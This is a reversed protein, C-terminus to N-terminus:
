KTIEQGISLIMDFEGKCNICANNWFIEKEKGNKTIIINTYEYFKKKNKIVSKWVKYINKRQSKPIFIKIWEKGIVEKTKYGTLKEAFKNFILIKSKVGLGIVINPASDILKDSFEKEKKLNDQLIKQETVNDILMLVNIGNSLIVTKAIVEGLFTKKNKKLFNFKLKLYGESVTKKLIKFLNFNKSGFEKKILHEMKMKKIENKSYGLMKITSNNIDVINGKLNHIIMAQNNNEFLSKYDRDKLLIEVKPNLNRIM